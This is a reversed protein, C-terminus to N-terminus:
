AESRSLCALYKDELQTMHTKKEPSDDEYGCLHLCGHIIVRHLEDQYNTLFETANEKIQAASLYLEGEIPEEPNNLNFTIVDTYVDSHFYEQKMVRLADKSLFILNIFSSRQQEGAIVCNVAAEFLHTDVGPDPDIIEITM